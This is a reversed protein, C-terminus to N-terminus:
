TSAEKNARLPAAARAQLDQLLALSRRLVTDEATEDCLRTDEAYGGEAIAKRTPIYGVYGNALGIIHSHSFPSQRKISQGIETYLEGPFSLWASEGIAIGTQEIAIDAGAAARLEEYLLALYDDGVGDALATVAGGTQQLVGRAWALQEDSIQRRAIAYTANAATVFADAPAVVDAVRTVVQALRDGLRAVGEWDRDRLGDIDVSGQAGNVFLAPAGYQQELLRCAHGPYDASILLNDGSMVNPHGSHAFLLGIVKARDATQTVKLVGVAPDAEGLPGHLRDQPFPEWNMVVHGDDALLRRYHSITTEVGAGYGAVAPQVSGRASAVAEAIRGILWENYADERPNFFGHCAPGSHTHTAAVIIRPAPIGTTRAAACRAAAAVTDPLACVEVAVIAVCDDPTNGIVLCRAHLPDHVGQARKDRIMGDLWVPYQPTIDVQAAGAYM